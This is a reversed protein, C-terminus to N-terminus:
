DSAPQQQTQQEARARQQRKKRRYASRYGKLRDEDRWFVYQGCARVEDVAEKLHTYAQDRVLKIASDTAKDGTAEALLQSMEDSRAAAQDLLAMEFNIRSLPEANARGLVAVDNLDQIMDADSRGEAIDQVRNLLEPQERYAYRMAHLISDRLDYAQPSLKKWKAMAEEQTFRTRFWISEAERCAGARVSLDQVLAWDLGASQLKERDQTCWQILNEAEQTYVEIPIDPSKVEDKPIQSITSLKSQYDDRNSMTTEEEISGM